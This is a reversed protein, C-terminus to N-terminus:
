SQILSPNSVRDGFSIEFSRRCGEDSEKSIKCVKKGDHSSTCRIKSNENIIRLAQLNGHVFSTDVVAVTKM